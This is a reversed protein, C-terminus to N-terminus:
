CLNKENSYKKLTTILDDNEAPTGVTIRLCNECLPQSSRNRVVIAKSLLYKYLTAANNVQILIFNADSPYITQIFYFQKFDDILREKQQVLINTKEKALTENQLAQQALQQVSESINYPPKIKNLIQIIEKSAFAFGIRLGALGWAKSLTQLVVLNPFTNLLHSWSLKNTFDIYAEDIVVIGNFNKLLWIISDNNILNGTPNNPSCVFIVKTADDIAENIAEIDLQFNSTLLVKKVAVDNIEASVEYMGYTPPCIIISDKGPNCFARILLDIAEDSGNGIFINEVAVQKVASLKEKLKKQLPDPYRHFNNNLVSGLSNENADLFIQAEGEFESRASSYPILKKINNRVINELTFAAM